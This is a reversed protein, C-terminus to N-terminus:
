LYGLAASLIALFSIVLIINLFYNGGMSKNPSGGLGYYEKRLKEKMADSMETRQIEPLEDIYQSSSSSSSPQQILQDDDERYERTIRSINALTDDEDGNEEANPTGSGAMIRVASHPTGRMTLSMRPAMTNGQVATQLGGRCVPGTRSVVITRATHCHM